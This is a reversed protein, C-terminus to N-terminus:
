SHSVTEAARSDLIALIHAVVDAISMESSDVVVADDAQRLPSAARTSDAQDRRAISETGSQAADGRGALQDERDRRAARVSSDATLFIKITADPAVTTGIDRGEVVIDGDGIIERQMAVMAVRVDPVASVASVAATVDAERM